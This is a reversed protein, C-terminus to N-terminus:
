KVPEVKGTAPNFRFQAGGSAAPAAGTDRSSMPKIDGVAASAGADKQTAALIRAASERVIGLNKKLNGPSQDQRVSAVVNALLANERDSIQGLAGGTPSAARMKSLEDFGISATLSEIEAAVDRAETNFPMQGLAKGAVGATWSNVRPLISDVKSVIRSAADLAYTNPKDVRRETELAAFEADIAKKDRYDKIPDREPAKPASPERYQQDLEKKAKYDAIPDREQEPEALLRPDIGEGSEAQLAAVSRRDEGTIPGQRQTLFSGIMQRVGTQNNRERAARGREEEQGTIQQQRQQLETDALRGRQAMEARDQLLRANFQRQQEQQQAEVMQRRFLDALEDNAGQAIQGPFGM